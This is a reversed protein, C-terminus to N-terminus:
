PGEETTAATGPITVPLNFAGPFLVPVSLEVTARRLDGDLPCSVSADWGGPVFELAATECAAEAAGASAGAAARAGRDAASGALYFGYGIVICQWIAAFVVLILPFLGAFEVM